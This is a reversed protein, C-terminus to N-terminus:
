KIKRKKTRLFPKYKMKHIKYHNYKEVNRRRFTRRKKNIKVTSKIINYKETVWKKENGSVYKQVNKILKKRKFHNKTNTLADFMIHNHLGKILWAHAPTM